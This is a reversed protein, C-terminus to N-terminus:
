CHFVDRDQSVIGESGTTPCYSATIIGHDLPRVAWALPQLAPEWGSRLNGGLGLFWCASVGELGGWTENREDAGQNRNSGTNSEQIQPRTSVQLLYVLFPSSQLWALAFVM